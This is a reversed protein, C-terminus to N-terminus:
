NSGFLLPNSTFLLMKSIFLSPNSFDNFPLFSIVSLSLIRNRVFIQVRGSLKIWSGRRKALGRPNAIDGSFLMLFKVSPVLFIASDVTKISM